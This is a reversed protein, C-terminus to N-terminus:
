AWKNRPANKHIIQSKRYIGTMDDTFLFLKVEEKWDTHEKNRSIAKYWVKSGVSSQVM